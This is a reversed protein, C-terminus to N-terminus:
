CSSRIFHVQYIKCIIEKIESLKSWYENIGNEMLSGMFSRNGPVSISDGTPSLWLLKGEWLLGKLIHMPMIKSVMTSINHIHSKPHSNKRGYRLITIFAQNMMMLLCAQRSICQM